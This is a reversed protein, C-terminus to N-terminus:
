KIWNKIWKKASEIDDEINNSDRLIRLIDAAKEVEYAKDHLDSVIDRLKSELGWSNNM